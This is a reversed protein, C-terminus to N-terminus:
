AGAGGLGGAETAAPCDLRCREEVASGTWAWLETGAEIGPSGSGGEEILAASGSAGISVTRSGRARGTFGRGSVGERIAPEISSGLFSSSEEELVMQAM